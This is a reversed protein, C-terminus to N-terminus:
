NHVKGPPLQFTNQSPLNYNPNSPDFRSFLGNPPSFAISPPAGFTQSPPGYVAAPVGSYQASSFQPGNNVPFQNNSPGFGNQQYNQQGGANFGNSPIFTPATSSPGFVQYPLPSQSEVRGYFRPPPPSQRLFDIFPFYASQHM